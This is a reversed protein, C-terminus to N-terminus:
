IRERRYKGKNIIEGSSFESVAYIFYFKLYHLLRVDSTRVEKGCAPPPSLSVSSCFWNWNRELNYYRAIFIGRSSFYASFYDVFPIM